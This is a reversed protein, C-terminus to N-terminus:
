PSLIEELGLRANFWESQRKREEAFGADYSAEDDSAAVACRGSAHAAVFAINAAIAGLTPSDGGHSVAEYQEPRAGRALAVIDALLALVDAYRTEARALAVAAQQIDDLETALALERGDRAHLELGSVILDRLRRITGEIFERMAQEDWAEVRRVLRARQAVVVDDHTEQDGDLEILWLEDDIWGSLNVGTCAHPGNGCLDLPGDADVWEDLPWEYGTYLAVRGRGLFKLLIV